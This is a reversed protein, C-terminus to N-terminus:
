GVIKGTHKHKDEYEDQLMGKFSRSNKFDKISIEQLLKDEIDRGHFSGLIIGGVNASYSSALFFSPLTIRVFFM